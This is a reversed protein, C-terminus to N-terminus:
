LFAKLSKGCNSLDRNGCYDVGKKVVTGFVYVERESAFLAGAEYNMKIQQNDVFQCMPM